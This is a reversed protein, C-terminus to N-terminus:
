YVIKVLEWVFNYAGLIAGILLKTGGGKGLYGSAHHRPIQLKYFQPQVWAIEDEDLERGAMDVRLSSM